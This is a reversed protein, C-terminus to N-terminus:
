RKSSYSLRKKIFNASIRDEHQYFISSVKGFIIIVFEVATSITSEQDMMEELGLGQRTMISLDTWENIENTNEDDLKEAKTEVDLEIDWPDFSSGENGSDDTNM